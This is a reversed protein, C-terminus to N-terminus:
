IVIKKYKFRSIISIILTIIIFIFMIEFMLSSSISWYNSSNIFINLILTFIATSLLSGIDRITSLFASSGTVNIENSSEFLIKKNPTEFIGLGIALLVLAIVIFYISLHNIFCFIASALCMIILGYDTLNVPNHKDSLRGAFLSSIMMVLAFLGILLGTEIATFKGVYQLYLTLVFIAGCKVLQTMLATFNNLAYLHNKLVRFNFIPEEIKLEYIVFISMLIISIIFLIIGITTSLYTISYVFLAMTIFWLVIGIKDLDVDDYWEEDFTLLLVLTLVMFPLTFFYVWIWSIYASLFGGVLPAFLSGAFGGATAIGLGYGVKHINVKRYIFVYLTAFTGSASLGHLMNGVIIFYPNITILCLFSGIIGLIVCIISSKVIGYKPTIKGFAIGTGSCALFFALYVWNAFVSSIDLSSSLYPLTIAICDYNFIGIFTLLTSILIAKVEINM